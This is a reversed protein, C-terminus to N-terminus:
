FRWGIGGKIDAGLGAGGRNGINIMPGLHVQAFLMLDSRIFFEVGGGALIPVVAHTFGGFPGGVGGNTGGTIFLPVQLGITITLASSVALGFQAAMLETWNKGTLAPNIGTNNGNINFKGGGLAAVPGVAYTGVDSLSDGFSVQASYKNTLTQDGGTSGGCGALVAAAIISMAFNTQRM